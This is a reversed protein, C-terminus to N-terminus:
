GEPVTPPRGARLRDRCLAVPIVPAARNLVAVGRRDEALVTRDPFRALRAALPATGNAALLVRYPEAASLPGTPAPAEFNVWRMLASPSYAELQGDYGVRGILGPHMWLLASVSLNDALIAACPHADAYSATADIAAVPALREYGESSQLALRALGGVALVVGLAFLGCAFSRTMLRTPMWAGATEGILLAATIGLWVGNRIALAAALGTIVVAAVLAWSPRRGRSWALATSALALVLPIAFQFFALEPFAPRDWEYDAARMAPNGLFESYYHAIGFGYPTAFPTLSVVLALAMYLVASRWVRRRAMSAARSLLYVCALFAGLVVSGHINAWVALLPLLALVPWRIADRRRDSACVWLMACFLPLAMTQARIFILTFASVAAFSAFSIAVPGSMRRSRMLGALLAYASALVVANLMALGQYGSLRWAQYSLWDALWQQVAATQGHNVIAFV